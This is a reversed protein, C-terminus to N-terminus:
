TAPRVMHEPPLGARQRIRAQQGPTMMDRVVVQRALSAVFGYGQGDMELWRQWELEDLAAEVREPGLATARTLDAETSRGGLVAATTLVQRADEGLRRFGIRIAAVVTDPLDSPLSQTLTRSPAPWAASGVRLDLGQAVASLLEVALFPIGASDSAVRRAVRELATPDYAPLAWHALQRLADGDLPRLTLAIGLGGTGLRRRLEDLEDRPPHSTTALVVCLPVGPLDRLLALLGLLSARDAFQADDMILLLPGESTAASVIAPFARAQELPLISSATRFREGWEPLVAAFAALAEPAAGPIGPADLLGGRALGRIGSGEDELDGEVARMLTVAGGSLVARNALEELLRSKGIGSDGELVVASARPKQCCDDWVELLRRLEEGRGVLPARRPEAGAAKPAAPRVRGRGRRIREALLRTEEGATMGLERIQDAHREAHALAACSDGRGALAAMVGCAVADSLPDLSEARQAATLAEEARGQRLLEGSRGLLAAISRATWHRREGALWEEFGEAGPVAFGELFEGAILETARAWEAGSILSDLADADLHVADAALRIQGASTDLGEGVGSHRLVRLAENLSHRAASEAKEPWLLGCLHERTRARKPSRALYILLALHKRWLLEAPAPGEAVVVEIPGLVRCIIM